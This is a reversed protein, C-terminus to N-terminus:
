QSRQISRQTSSLINKVCFKIQEWSRSNLIGNSNQIAEVCAAKGPVKGCKIYLDLHFFVASKEENSWLLKKFARRPKTPRDYLSKNSNMVRLSDECDAVKKVGLDKKYKDVTWEDESNEDCDTDQHEVPIRKMTKAKRPLMMKIRGTSDDQM